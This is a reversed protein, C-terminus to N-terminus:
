SRGASLEFEHSVREFYWARNGLFNLTNTHILPFTTYCLIMLKWIVTIWLLDKYLSIKLCADFDYESSHLKQSFIKDSQKCCCFDCSIWYQYCRSKFENDIIRFQLFQKHSTNNMICCAEVPCIIILNKALNEIRCNRFTIQNNELIM